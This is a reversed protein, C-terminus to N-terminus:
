LQAVRLFRTRIRQCQRTLQGHITARLRGRGIYRAASTGRALQAALLNAAGDRPLGSKKADIM